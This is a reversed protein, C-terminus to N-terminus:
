RDRRKRLECWEPPVDGAQTELQLRVKGSGSPLDVIRYSRPHSCHAPQGGIVRPNMKRYWGCEGCKHITAPNTM